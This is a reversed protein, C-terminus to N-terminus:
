LILSLPPSNALASSALLVLPYYFEYSRDQSRSVPSLGTPLAGPSIITKLINIATKDAVPAEVRFLFPIEFDNFESFPFWSVQTGFGRYFIKFWYAMSAESLKAGEIVATAEGLSTARAM